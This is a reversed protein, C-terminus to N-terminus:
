IFVGVNFFIMVVIVVKLSLNKPHKLLITDLYSPAYSGVSNKEDFYKKITIICADNECNTNVSTYASSFLGWKM